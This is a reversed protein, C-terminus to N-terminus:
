QKSTDNFASKTTSKQQHYSAMVGKKKKFNNVNILAVDNSLTVSVCVCVCMRFFFFIGGFVLETPFGGREVEVVKLVFTAAVDVEEKRLPASVMDVFPPVDDDLTIMVSAAASLFLLLLAAEGACSSGDQYKRGARGAVILPLALAGSWVRQTESWQRLGFMGTSVM